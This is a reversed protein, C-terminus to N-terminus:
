LTERQKRGDVITVRNFHRCIRPQFKVCGNREDGIAGKREGTNCSHHVQHLLALELCMVQMRNKVMQRWQSIKESGDRTQKPPPKRKVREPDHTTKKGPMWQRTHLDPSSKSDPQKVGRNQLAAM